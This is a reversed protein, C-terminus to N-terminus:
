LPDFRNFTQFERKYHIYCVNQKDRWWVGHRLYRVEGGLVTDSIDFDITAVWLRSSDVDFAASVSQSDCSGSVCSDIPVCVAVAVM